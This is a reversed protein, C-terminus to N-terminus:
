EGKSVLRIGKEELRIRGDRFLMGASRKFLNKSMGLLRMIEEKPSDDTLPLFGGASELASQLREKGDALADMGLKHITIDLKGDNRVKKVYGEGKEGIPLERGTEDRYILGPYANNVIVSFGLESSRHVFYEIKKGAKLGSTDTRIYSSYAGIGVVGESKPDADIYVVYSRGKVMPEQMASAPVFLDKGIGWDLFAGFAVVDKVKLYAFEGRKAKPSDLTALLTGDSDAYVFAEIRDGVVVNKPTDRKPLRVERDDDSALILGGGAKTRVTLTNFDGIVLM